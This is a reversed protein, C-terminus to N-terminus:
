CNHLRPRTWLLRVQEVQWSEFKETSYQGEAQKWYPQDLYVLSVDKWRAIPPLGQTMDHRRIEHEREVIPKRDSVWYRRSRKKCLDITSGSGAFPDVVIDAPQTYLYVLNDLWRIESNGFHKTGATKEQQKWVNYNPPTFDPSNVFNDAESKKTFEAEWTTVAQQTV